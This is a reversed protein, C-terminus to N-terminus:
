FGRGRGRRNRFRERMEESKKKIIKNYEDRSVEEGKSPKKIEVAEEPNIVIETCLM